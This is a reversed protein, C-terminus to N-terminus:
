SLPYMRCECDYAMFGVRRCKCTYGQCCDSDKTCSKWSGACGREEEGVPEMEGVEIESDGKVLVSLGICVFIVFLKM